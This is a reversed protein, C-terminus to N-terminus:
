SGMRSWISAGILSSNSRRVISIARISTPRRFDASLYNRVGSPLGGPTKQQRSLSNPKIVEVVIANIDREM